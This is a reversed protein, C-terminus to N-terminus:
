PLDAATERLLAILEAAGLGAVEEAFMPYTSEPLNVTDGEILIVSHNNLPLYRCTDTLDVYLAMIARDGIELRHEGAALVTREVGYATLWGHTRVVVERGVLEREGAVVDEVQVSLLRPTTVVSTESPKGRAESFVTGVVVVDPMTVFDAVSGFLESFEEQVVIPRDPDIIGAPPPSDPDFTHQGAAVPSPSPILSPPPTTPILDSTPSTGTPEPATPPPPAAQETFEVRVGDAALTLDQGARHITPSSTLFEQFWDDAAGEAGLCGMASSVMPDEIRLEQSESITFESGFRNCAIDAYFGQRDETFVLVVDRDFAWEHGLVDVSRFRLGSLDAAEVTAPNAESSSVPAGCGLLGVGLLAVLRKMRQM